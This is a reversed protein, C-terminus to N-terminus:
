LLSLVQQDIFDPTMQGLHIVRVTGDRDVFVSTPLGFTVGYTDAIKGDPDLAATFKVGVQSLFRQMAAKNGERFDVAIVDLGRGRYRDWVQQIAPMEAQCATCWTAWFNILVVRGRLASLRVTGGNLLPTTFDPAAHGVEAHGAAVITAQGVAGSHSRTAFVAVALLVAAGVAVALWRGWRGVGRSV